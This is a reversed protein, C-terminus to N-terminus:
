ERSMDIVNGGQKLTMKGEAPRFELTLGAQEFRFHHTEYPELPFEPQGTAQGMLVNGKKSINLKLPFGPSSYTGLYQDLVESSLAIAPKFDPLEYDKGFYISLAGLLVSNLPMVVGNSLYTVGVKEEPFYAANSQFGDIGGNHGFASTEYFPFTFLGMGYNDVLKKMEGLSKESVVKGNFLAHYFTNLDAPTSVIAGAGAPLSMDTQTAPTWNEQMTYSFAENQASNIQGGYYTNKLKLPKVIRDQLLKAYEKRSVKEAIYTLLVYNTNSYEAREGPKFVTGNAAFLKVLAAKTKPKEMWSTFDAANTYNFLGSRHRLLHEISIEGANPLEPYFEALKSDLSLKKEEVLQMILAATFTKSISGIRYKTNASATIKNQLDAYGFSKQYVEKGNESISISGM